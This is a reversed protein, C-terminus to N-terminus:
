PKRWVYKEGYRKGEQAPRFRKYGNDGFFQDLKEVDGGPLEGGKYPVRDNEGIKRGRFFGQRQLRNYIDQGTEEPTAPAPTKEPAVEPKKLGAADPNEGNTPMQPQPKEEPAPATVKKDDTKVPQGCGPLTKIKDYMEKTIVSEGKIYELNKLASLTKPGFYGKQPKVGICGQIEAIKPAICGFEFPFDKSSCDHYNVGKKPKPVIKGDDKKGDEKKDGDWTIDINSLGISGSKPPTPPTVGGGKAMAIIQPKMNKAMVSLNAVGVSNVDTVFDVGEDEKYFQLFKKTADEGQYTKGKLATLIDKLSKLNYEAVYGDLDDVASDVYSDMQEDTVEGSQENLLGKLSIRKSEAQITPAGNKCKWTGMKKTAVDAVRGNAMFNLGQPYEQTVVRVVVLGSNELTMVTGEKSTILEKICPAWESDDVPPVPPFDDGKQDSAFSDIMWWLAAASIGLGAGWAVLKKWNPKTKLFELLRTKWKEWWTKLPKPPTPKPTPNPPVPKPKQLNFKKQVIKTIADDSYGAQKLAKEYAPQGKAFEAAYKQDFSKNRVLNEAALEILKPNKTNSKLISLELSGKLTSTLRNGKLATLLEESTRIGSRTLENAVKSDKTMMKLYGELESALLKGELAAKSILDENLPGMITEVLSMSKRISSKKRNEM